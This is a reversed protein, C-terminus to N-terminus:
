GEIGRDTVRVNEGLSLFLKSNDDPDVVLLMPEDLFHIYKVVASNGKRAIYPLYPIVGLMVCIIQSNKYRNQLDVERGNTTIIRPLKTRAAIIKDPPRLAIEQFKKKAQELKKRIQEKTLKRSFYVKM